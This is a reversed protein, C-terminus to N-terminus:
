RTWDDPRSRAMSACVIAVAGPRTPCNWGGRWSATMTLLLLGESNLDLRGVTVVRPMGEPLNEFITPRGEPDSTTTILGRPKHYLWLRVHEREPLPNGDVTILDRPGVTIAPTDLQKGNLTVRGEAIMKEAERRSCIGARAIVKAIREGSREPTPPPTGAHNRSATRSKGPRRRKPDRTM